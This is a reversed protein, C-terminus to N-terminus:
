DALEVKIALDTSSSSSSSGYAATGRGSGQNSAQLNGLPIWSGLRGRVQTQLGQTQIERGQKRNAHQDVDVVVEEGVIRVTAYFGGTVPVLERSGYRDTRVPYINGASILAPTNELARVQQSGTGSEARDRQEIAIRTDRDHAQRGGGTQVQVAGTGVRGEVGYRSDASSAESQNRVSILLSRPAVDFQGLLELLKKYEQPTVNLILQQQYATISSDTSVQSNLVPLVQEPLAHRMTYNYLHREQASALSALLLGFALSLWRMFPKKAPDVLNDLLASCRPTAIAM